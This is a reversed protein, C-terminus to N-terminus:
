KRRSLYKISRWIRIFVKVLILLRITFLIILSFLLIHSVMLLGIYPVQFTIDGIIFATASLLSAIMFILCSLILIRIIRFSERTFDAFELDAM